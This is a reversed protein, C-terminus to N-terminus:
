HDEARNGSLASKEAISSLFDVISSQARQLALALLHQHKEGEAHSLLAAQGMTKISFSKKAFRVCHLMSTKLMEAFGIMFVDETLWADNFLCLGPMTACAQLSVVIVHFFITCFKNCIVCISADVLTREISLLAM